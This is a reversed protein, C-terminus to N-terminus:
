RNLPRGKIDTTFYQYFMVSITNLNNIIRNLDISFNTSNCNLDKYYYVETLGLNPKIEDSIINMINKKKDLVFNYRCVNQTAWTLIMFIIIGTIIQVKLISYMKSKKLYFIVSNKNLDL